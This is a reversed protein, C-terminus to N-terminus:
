EVDVNRSILSNIRVCKTTYKLKVVSRISNFYSHKHFHVFYLLNYTHCQEVVHCAISIVPKFRKQAIIHDNNYVIYEFPLNM